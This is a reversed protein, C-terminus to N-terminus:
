KARVRPRLPPVPRNQSSYRILEELRKGRTEQKKASAIWWIAAKRYSPAQAQFFKWGPRNARFRRVEDPLLRAGTRQEYSYVGSKGPRRAKFAALGAPQVLGEKSLEQIRKQNAASWISGPKRPSFRIAYTGEDIGQRVGDIWGFCLAQDVSESWTMSPNGSGIKHFGVWLETAEDHHGELWARFAAPTAFFTPKM